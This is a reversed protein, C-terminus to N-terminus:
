LFEEAGCVVGIIRCYHLCKILMRINTQWLQKTQFFRPLLIQFDQNKKGTNEDVRNKEMESMVAVDLRGLTMSMLIFEEM